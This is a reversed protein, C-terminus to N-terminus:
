ISNIVGNCWTRANRASTSIWRSEAQTVAQSQGINPNPMTCYSYPFALLIIPM